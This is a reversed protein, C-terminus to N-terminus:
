YQLTQAIFLLPIFLVIENPLVRERKMRVGCFKEREKAAAFVAAAAAAPFVAAVVRKKGTEEECFCERGRMGGCVGRVEM